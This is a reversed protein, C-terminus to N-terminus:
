WRLNSRTTRLSPTSASPEGLWDSTSSAYGYRWDGIYYTYGSPDGSGSIFQCHSITTATGSTSAVDTDVGGVRMYIAHTTTSVDYIVEVWYWQDISISYEAGIDGGTNVFLGTSGLYVDGREAGPDACQNWLVAVSSSVPKGASRFAFGVWAMTRSGTIYHRCGINNGDTTIQLSKPQSQYVPSAVNTPYGGSSWFGDVYYTGDINHDFNNTGLTTPM